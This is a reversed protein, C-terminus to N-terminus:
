QHLDLIRITNEWDTLFEKEKSHIEGDIYIILEIISKLMEIAGDGYKRKLKIGILGLHEMDIPAESITMVIEYAEERSIDEENLSAVMLDVLELGEKKLFKGDAKAAFVGTTIVAMVVEMRSDYNYSKELLYTYHLVFEEMKKEIEKNDVYLVGSASDVVIKALSSFLGM